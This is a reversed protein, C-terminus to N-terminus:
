ISGIMWYIVVFVPLSKLARLSEKRLFQRFGVWEDFFWYIFRGCKFNAEFFLFYNSSSIMKEHAEKEFLYFFEYVIKLGKDIRELKKLDQIIKMDSKKSNNM